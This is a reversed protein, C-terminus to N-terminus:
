KQLEHLPISLAKAVGEGYARDARMCNGVHRVKIEKPADGMARGTNEFLTQKQAASMLQFLARPQTYYDDDERHNWHDAAGELSM